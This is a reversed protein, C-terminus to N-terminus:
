LEGKAQEKADRLMTFWETPNQDALWPLYEPHTAFIKKCLKRAYRLHGCLYEAYIVPDGEHLRQTSRLVDFCMMLRQKQTLPRMTGDGWRQTGREFVHDYVTRDFFYVGDGKFAGLLEDFLPKGILQRDPIYKTIIEGNEPFQVRQLKGCRISFVEESHVSFPAKVSILEQAVFAHYKALLTGGNERTLTMTSMRGHIGYPPLISAKTKLSVYENDNWCGRLGSQEYPSGDYNVATVSQPFYTSTSRKPMIVEAQKEKYIFGDHLVHVLFADPSIVAGSCESLDFKKASCFELSAKGLHVETDKPFQLAVGARSGCLLVDLRSVSNSCLVFRYNNHLPTHCFAAGNGTCFSPTVTFESLGSGWFAFDGFKRCLKPFALHHLGQCEAFAREGIRVLCEPLQVTGLRASKEFTSEPLEHVQAAIVCYELKTNFFVRKGLKHISAPLEVRRLTRNGAFAEARIENVPMGDIESPLILQMANGHYGTIRVSKTKKHFSFGQAAAEQGTLTIYEVQPTPISPMVKPVYCNWEEWPPLAEQEKRKEARLVAEPPLAPQVPQQVTLMRQRNRRRIGIARLTIVFLLVCVILVISLLILMFVKM